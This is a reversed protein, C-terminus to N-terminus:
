KLEHLLKLQREAEDAICFVYGLYNAGAIHSINCLNDRYKIWSRQMKKLSNKDYSDYSELLLHYTTNLQKDLRDIKLYGCEKILQTNGGYSNAVILCDSLNLEELTIQNSEYKLILESKDIAFLHISFLFFTIIYLRIM